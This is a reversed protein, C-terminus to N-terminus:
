TTKAYAFPGHREAGQPTAALLGDRDLIEGRLVVLSPMCNLDARLQIATAEAATAAPSHSQDAL